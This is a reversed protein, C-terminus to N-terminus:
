SSNDEEITSLINSVVREKKKYSWNEKNHSPELFIHIIEHKITEVPRDNNLNITVTNNDTNYFGMPGYASVKVQVEKMDKDFFDATKELFNDSSEQWRERVQKLFKEYKKKDYEEEVTTNEPWTIEIEQSKFFDVDKRTMEVIEKEEKLTNISFNIKNM